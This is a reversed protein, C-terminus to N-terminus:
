NLTRFYQFVHEAIKVIFRHFFLPTFLCNKFIKIQLLNIIFYNHYINYRDLGHM